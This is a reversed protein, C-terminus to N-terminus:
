VVLANIRVSSSRALDSHRRHPRATQSVMTMVSMSRVQFIITILTLAIMIPFLPALRNAKRVRSPAARSSATASPLKAIIPQLEEMRRTSLRPQVRWPSPRRAIAARLIPRGHPRWPESRCPIRQGGEVLRFRRDARDARAEPLAAMVQASRIDEPVDHHSGSLSFQVNAV